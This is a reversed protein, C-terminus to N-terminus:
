HKSVSVRSRPSLGSEDRDSLIFTFISGRLGLADHSVRAVLVSSENVSLVESVLVM